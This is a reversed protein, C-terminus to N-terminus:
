VATENAASAGAACSALSGTYISGTDNIKRFLLNIVSMAVYINFISMIQVIVAILYDNLKLQGVLKFKVIVRHTLM